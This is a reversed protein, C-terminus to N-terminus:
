AVEATESHSWPTGVVETGDLSALYRRALEEHIAAVKLRDARLALTLEQIARQRYYRVDTASM